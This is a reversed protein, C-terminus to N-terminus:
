LSSRRGRPPEIHCVYHREREPTSSECAMNPKLRILRGSEVPNRTRIRDADFNAKRPTECGGRRPLAATADVHARNSERGLARPAGAGILAYVAEVRM